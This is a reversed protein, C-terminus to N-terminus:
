EHDGTDLRHQDLKVNAKKKEAETLSRESKSTGYLARQLAAEDADQRRQKRKRQLRLNVVDGM